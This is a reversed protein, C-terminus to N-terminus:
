RQKLQQSKSVSAVALGETSPLDNKTNREIKAGPIIVTANKIRASNKSHVQHRWRNMPQLHAYFGVSATIVDSGTM